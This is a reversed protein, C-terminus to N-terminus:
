AGDRNVAEIIRRGIWEAVQPVVANGLGKLRDVRAPVRSAVRPVPPERNQWYLHWQTQSNEPCQQWRLQRAWRSETDPFVATDQGAGRVPKERSDVDGRRRRDPGRNGVAEIAKREGRMAAHKQDPYALIFVRDRIHPAGFAGAPLSQWEADYGSEALDGLVRGFGRGPALLGPTNEVFVFRPRLLRIIRRFQSWLGSREGDIGAGKGALSVDQCPFGGAILDVGWEAGSDPPFTRVDDHRRVQPWHKALVRRCYPAIEVQWRCEMGARELGLDMGGIGAFLSGFTM